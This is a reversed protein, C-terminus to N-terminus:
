EGYCFPIATLAGCVRAAGHALFVQLLATLSALLLAGAGIAVWPAGPGGKASMVGRILIVLVICLGGFVATVLSPTDHLLKNAFGGTGPRLLARGVGALLWGAVWGIVPTWRGRLLGTM